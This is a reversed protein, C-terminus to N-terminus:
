SSRSRRRRRGTLLLVVLALGPGLSGTPAASCGGEDEGAKTRGGADDDGADDDGADGAGDQAECGDTAWRNADVAVYRGKAPVSFPPSNGSAQMVGGLLMPRYVIEAGTREVFGALQSNALYAFPSVYDFFFELRPSM